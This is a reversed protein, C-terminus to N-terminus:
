VSAAPVSGRSFNIALSSEWLEWLQGPDRSGRSTYSGSWNNGSSGSDGSGIQDRDRWWGLPEESQGQPLGPWNSQTARQAWPGSGPSHPVSPLDCVSVRRDSWPMEEAWWTSLFSINLIEHLPCSLMLGLMLSIQAHPGTHSPVRWIGMISAKGAIPALLLFM